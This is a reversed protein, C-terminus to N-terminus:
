SVREPLYGRSGKIQDRCGSTHVTCHVTKNEILEMRITVGILQHNSQTDTLSCLRWVAIVRQMKIQM